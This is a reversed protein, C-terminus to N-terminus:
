ELVVLKRSASIRQAGDVQLRYFYVGSAVKRGRADTGDWRVRHRGAEYMRGPILRRVPRGLMDYITLTVRTQEPLTFSIVTTPNFPNPYNQQLAFTNAPMAPLKPEAAIPAAAVKASAGGPGADPNASSQKPTYDVPGSVFAYYWYNNEANLTTSTLNWVDFETAYGDYFNNWQNQLFANGSSLTNVLIGADENQFVQGNTYGFNNWKVEAPESQELYLGYSNAYINNDHINPNAGTALRIGSAHNEIYNNYIEPFAERVKLGTSGNKIQNATIIAAGGYQEIGIPPGNITNGQILPQKTNSPDRLYIGHSAGAPNQITSNQVTLSTNVAYVAQETFNQLTCNNITVNDTGNVYVGKTVNEITAYNLNGSSGSNFQIGGWQGTTTSRTFTTSTTSTGNVILTGNIILEAKTTYMGGNQDDSTAALSVTTGSEVGLIVGSNVTVDGTVTISGWWTTNETLTGSWSTKIFNTKFDVSISNGNQTYNEVAFKSASGFYRRLTAPYSYDHISQYAYSGDPRFIDDAVVGGEGTIGDAEILDITAGGNGTGLINWILLGGYQYTDHGPLGRDFGQTFQRNEVLFTDSSVGWVFYNNLTDGYVITRSVDGPIRNIRLWGWRYRQWPNIPDPCNGFSGGGASNKQGNGMISWRAAGKGHHRAGLLHAFEHCYMGIHTLRDDKHEEDYPFKWREHVRMWDGGIRDARPAISDWRNGAYVFCVRRQASTRTDLGARQAAAKASDFFVTYSKSAFYTKTEQMQAWVPYGDATSDNEIIVTINYRGNSMDDFYDTFSGYVPENDPSRPISSPNNPDPTEYYDRRVLMNYFDLWKYKNDYPVMSDSSMFSDHKVDTFEVLIIALTDPMETYFPTSDPTGCDGNAASVLSYTLLLIGVVLVLVSSYRKYKM